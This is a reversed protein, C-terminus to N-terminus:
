PERQNPDLWFTKLQMMKSAMLLQLCQVISGDWIIPVARSKRGQLFTVNGIPDYPAGVSFYVVGRKQLGLHQEVWTMQIMHGVFQLRLIQDVSGFIELRRLASSTLCSRREKSLVSPQPLTTSTHFLAYMCETYHVDLLGRPAWILAHEWEHMNGYATRAKELCKELPQTVELFKHNLVWPKMMINLVEHLNSLLSEAGFVRM